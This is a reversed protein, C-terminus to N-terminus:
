SVFKENKEKRMKMSKSFEIPPSVVQIPIIEKLTIPEYKKYFKSNPNEYKKFKM